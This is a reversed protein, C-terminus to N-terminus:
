AMVYVFELLLSLHLSMVLSNSVLVSTLGELAERKNLQQPLSETM